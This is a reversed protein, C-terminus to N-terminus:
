GKAAAVPRATGFTGVPRSARARWRWLEDAGWVVVPFPLLFGVQAPSLAATGFLAQLPPLYSLAATFVLEFAIGGLLLRNSLVGISRLSARDTRAAFATGIQCAVIGAFTMTTAQRYAHDGVAAGPHWGSRWLTWFYGATVLVASVVGLLGWARLLLRRDIIGAKPPRPPRNMLGPEAKERGLALAPLTETGLDIALIQLVTLPLPVAGGSIAFILFPVVEPVAHAFIYLV